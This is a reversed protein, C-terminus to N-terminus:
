RAQRRACLPQGNNKDVASKYRDKLAERGERPTLADLNDVERPVARTFLLRTEIRPPLIATVGNGRGAAGIVLVPERDVEVGPRGPTLVDNPADGLGKPEPPTAGESM